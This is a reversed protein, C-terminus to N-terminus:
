NIKIYKEAGTTKIVKNKIEVPIEKAVDPYKVRRYISSRSVGYKKALEKATHGGKLLKQINKVDEQSLKIRPM